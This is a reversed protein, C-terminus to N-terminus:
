VWQRQEWHIIPTPKKGRQDDRIVLINLWREAANTVNDHGESTASRQENWSREVACLQQSADTCAGSQSWDASPAVGLPRLSTQRLVPWTGTVINVRQEVSREEARIKNKYSILTQKAGYNPFSQQWYRNNYILISFYLNKDITQQQSGLDSLPCTVPCDPTRNEAHFLFNAERNLVHLGERPGQLGERPGELGGTWHGGPTGRRPRSTFRGLYRILLARGRRGGYAKM